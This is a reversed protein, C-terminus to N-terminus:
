LFKSGKYIEKNQTQGGEHNNDALKIENEYQDKNLIFDEIEIENEIKIDYEVGNEELVSVNENLMIDENNTNDYLILEEADCLMTKDNIKDELKVVIEKEDKLDKLLSDVIQLCKM